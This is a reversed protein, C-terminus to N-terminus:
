KKAPISIVRILQKIRNYKSNLALMCIIPIQPKVVKIRPSEVWKWILIVESIAMSVSQMPATAVALNYRLNCLVASIMIPDIM